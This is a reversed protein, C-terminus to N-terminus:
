NHKTYDKKTCPASQGCCGSIRRRYHKVPISLQKKKIAPFTSLLLHHTCFGPHLGKRGNEYSMKMGIVYQSNGAKQLRKREM